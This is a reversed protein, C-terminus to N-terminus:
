LTSGLMQFYMLLPWDRIVATLMSAAVSDPMFLGYLNEFMFSHQLCGEEVVM